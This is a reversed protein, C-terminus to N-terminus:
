DLIIKLMRQSAKGDGFPNKWNQKRKLMSSIAKLIGAPKTGAVINSGVAVTEPRETNNRITVCPVGLICTEEQVGGSDTMVLRAMAELHIFDLFGVPDIVKVAQPLKLKFKELM